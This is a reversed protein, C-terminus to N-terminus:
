KGWEVCGAAMVGMRGGRSSVEGVRHRSKWAGHPQLLVANDFCRKCSSDVIVDVLCTATQRTVGCGVACRRSILGDKGVEVGM